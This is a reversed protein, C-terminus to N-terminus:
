RRQWSWFYDSAAPRGSSLAYRVPCFPATNDTVEVLIYLADQNIFAYGQRLDLFGETNDGEPDELLVQRDTWDDSNGDIEIQTVAMQTSGTVNQQQSIDGSTSQAITTCSVIILTVIIIMVFYRKM